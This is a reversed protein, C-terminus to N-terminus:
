TLASEIYTFISAEYQMTAQQVIDGPHQALTVHPKVSQASGGTPPVAHSINSQLTFSSTFIITLLMYRHTYRWQM